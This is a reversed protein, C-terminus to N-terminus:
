VARPRCMWDHYYKYSGCAANDLEEKEEESYWTFNKIEITEANCIGNCYNVCTKSDCKLVKCMNFVKKRKLVKVKINNYV